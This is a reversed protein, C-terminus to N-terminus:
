PILWPFATCFPSVGREIDRLMLASWKLPDSHLPTARAARSFPQGVFLGPEGAPAM